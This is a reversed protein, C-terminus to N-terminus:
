EKRGKLDYTKSINVGKFQKNECFTLYGRKIARETIIRAGEATMGVRSGLEAYSIGNRGRLESLVRLTARERSYALFYFLTGWTGHAVFIFLIVLPVYELRLACLALLPAGVVASVASFVGLFLWVRRMSNAKEM